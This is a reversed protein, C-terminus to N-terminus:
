LFGQQRLVDILTASMAENDKKTYRIDTFVQALTEKNNIRVFEQNEPLSEKETYFRDIRDATYDNYTEDHVIAEIPLRDSLPPNEDPWGLTITAVPMVLRPLQLVEIIQQPMYITTGLYCYGLGEEDALNCFTQTYLLADSAANIFSIFNDYGPTAKREKAWRTTRRFDACFTLVVPADTVMPQNFHAPALQRKKEESRTVIVSYLQLNGMTQTREAEKLLRTLLEGSVEKDSYKRISRRRNISEM